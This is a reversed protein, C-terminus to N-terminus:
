LDLNKVRLTHCRLDLAYLASSLFRALANFSHTEESAPETQRPM